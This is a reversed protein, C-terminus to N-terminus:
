YNEVLSRVEPLTKFQDEDIRNFDYRRCGAVLKRGVPSKHGLSPVEVFRM